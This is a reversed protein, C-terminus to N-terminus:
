VAAAPGSWDGLNPLLGVIHATEPTIILPRMKAL